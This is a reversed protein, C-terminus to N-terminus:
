LWSVQRTWAIVVGHPHHCEHENEASSHLLDILRTGIRDLCEAGRERSLAMNDFRAAWRRTRRVAPPLRILVSM